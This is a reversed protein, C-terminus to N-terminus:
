GRGWSIWWSAEERARWLAARRRRLLLDLFLRAM